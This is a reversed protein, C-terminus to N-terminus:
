RIATVEASRFSLLESVGDYGLERLAEHEPKPGGRAAAIEERVASAVAGAFAGGRSARDDLRTLSKKADAWHETVVHAVAFQWGPVDYSGQRDSFRAGLTYSRAVEEASVERGSMAYPLSLIAARTGPSDPLLRLALDALDTPLGRGQIMDAAAGFSALNGGVICFTVEPNEDVVTRLESALAAVESWSGRGLLTLAKQGLAHQRTHAGMTKSADLLRDAVEEARGLEGANFLAQTHWLLAEPENFLAGKAALSYLQEFTAVSRGIEATVASQVMGLRWLSDAYPLKDPVASLLGEVDALVTEDSTVMARQILLRVISLRDNNKRAVALGEANLALIEDLNPLHKFYGWNFAALDITDAYLKPAVEIGASKYLEIARLRHGTADDGRASRAYAIAIGEEIPAMEGPQEALALGHEYVSLASDPAQRDGLRQGAAVHARLAEARMEDFEPNGKWVWEADPPRLAEWWHHALAEVDDPPAGERAYRAHLHMRAGVPLRGYSVDRVLGHDFRFAGDVPRLYRLHALRGLTGAVEAPDREALLAADRITFTEGVVAARLLLDRDAVALEDLRAGIAAQVTIPLESSREGRARVLEMIFLPHGGARGIREADHGGAATALAAASNADLPALELLVRDGDAPRLATAAPFEPRATAVVILNKEEAFTLRDLLRVVESDAWHLDEIWILVPRDGGLASLYDRWGTFIENRRDFTPLALLRPDIAIGASHAVAAPVSRPDSDGVIQRLPASVGVETGPRCRAKMVLADASATRVFEEALRSKGIGPVGSVLVFTAKGSRARAFAEGIRAVEKARGVFPAPTEQAAVLKVLRSAPVEGVGKLTVAGLDAFDAAAGAAARCTPGVIVQGPEALHQLRSAVNVCTGVAMRQREDVADLDVLAEGTEVGVRVSLSEAMAGWGAAAEATRLARLVDDGHATPAGFLVFIEDGIYKEITGGEARAVGSIREFADALRGRMREPGLRQGIDTSGVVDIFVCTVLRRESRSQM